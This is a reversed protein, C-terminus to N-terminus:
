PSSTFRYTGKKIQWSGSPGASFQASALGTDYNLTAQNQMTLGNAVLSNVNATQALQAGGELAYFVANAGSQGISMASPSTSTTAVLIYGKPNASTPNFAAGQDVSVTGDVIWVTGNSGFNENLNVQTGGNRVTVNGTVYIPGDVTVTAQNSVILNGIYKKPGINALGGSIDCQAPTLSCDITGGVAAASRWYNYDLTPLPEPSASPNKTGTVTPDPSSITGVAFADGSILSSGSGTINANSYVTGNITSSNAMSVGGFGAQVAYRFSIGESSILVDVKITRKAKPNTSDPTYGTATITKLSTTKNTIAVTFTGTSGLLTNTEGSYSGVSQNLQWLAREVGAEALTTAQERLTSNAGFRLFGAVREFLSASLILVVALFIIAIILIQGKQCKVNSVQCKVKM